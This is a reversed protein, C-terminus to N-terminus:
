ISQEMMKEDIKFMSANRPFVIIIDKNQFIDIDLDYWDKHSLFLIRKRINNITSIYLDNMKNKKDYYRIIGKKTELNNYLRNKKSIM